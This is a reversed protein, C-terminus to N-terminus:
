GKGEGGGGGCLTGHRAGHLLLLARSVLMRSANVHATVVGHAEGVVGGGVMESQKGVAADDLDVDLCVAVTGGAVLNASVEGMDGGHEGGAVEVDGHEDVVLDRGADRHHLCLLGDDDISEPRRISAALNANSRGIRFREASHVVEQSELNLVVAGAIGGGDLVM